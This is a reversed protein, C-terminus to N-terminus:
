KKDTPEWLELNGGDGQKNARPDPQELAAALEEDSLHEEDDPENM